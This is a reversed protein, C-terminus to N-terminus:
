VPGNSSRDIPMPAWVSYLEINELYDLKQSLNQKIQLQSTTTMKKPRAMLIKESISWHKVIRHCCGPM